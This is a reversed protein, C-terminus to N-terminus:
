SLTLDKQGHWFGAALFSILIALVKREKLGSNHFSFCVNIRLVEM